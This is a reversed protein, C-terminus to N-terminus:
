VRQAAARQLALREVDRRVDPTSDLLELFTGRPLTLFICESRATVTATRPTDQLLAIEGFQDGVGLRALQRTSGDPRTASVTVQGRAILYFRDGADGERIVVDGASVRQQSFAHALTSLQADSLPALLHIERLRPVTVAVRQGDASVVIGQQKRWMEAYTGGKALLEPHTGQEVVRGDVLVFIRDADVATALRHTISVITRDSAVRAFTATIAAETAPDLASTAEDLLLLAPNRVLARALAVRQRQGGSLASGGPGVPTDWGRPLRAITEDLEADHAAREIDAQTAELWGLRINERVTTDFLLSDQMVVGIQARLSTVDAKSLEVGDFTIRGRMPEGYRGLLNLLTSKGSGSPGVFAVHQGRRIEVSIGMLVPMGQGYRFAVDSLVISEAFPALAIGSASEAPDVPEELIEDIRRSSGLAAVVGPAARGLVVFSWGLNWFVTLFAVLSGISLLSRYALMAGIAIVVVQTFYITIVTTREVLSGLFGARVTAEGLAALRRDFRALVHARLSYAKIVRHAEFSEQVMALLRAEAAKKAYAAAAARPTVVRPGVLLLPWILTGALALHWDLVFFLMAIGVLIGLGPVVVASMVGALGTEVVAMDNSFRALLDGAPRGGQAGLPMRACHEFVERRLSALMRSTISAYLWDRWTAMGSAVVLGAALGGVVLAMVHGRGPTGASDILFKYSLTLGGDFSVELLSLPLLLLWSTWYGYFHALVHRGAQIPVAAPPPEVVSAALTRAGPRGPPVSGSKSGGMM